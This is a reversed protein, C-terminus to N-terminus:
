PQRDALWGTKGDLVVQLEHGSVKKDEQDAKGSLVTPRDM